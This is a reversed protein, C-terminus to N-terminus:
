NLWEQYVGAFGAYPFKGHGPLDYVGHEPGRNAREEAECSFMIQNLDNLTLNELITKLIEDNELNEITDESIKIADLENELLDAKLIVVGGQPLCVRATKGDLEVM